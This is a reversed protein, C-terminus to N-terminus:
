RESQRMEVDGGHKRLLDDIVAKRTRGTRRQISVLIQGGLRSLEVPIVPDKEAVVAREVIAATRRVDMQQASVERDVTGTARRRGTIYGRWAKRCRRCRCGGTSYRLYTGHEHQAM